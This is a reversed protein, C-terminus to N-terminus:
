FLLLFIRWLLCSHRGTCGQVVFRAAYRPLPGVRDKNWPEGNIPGPPDVVYRALYIWSGEYLRQLLSDIAGLPALNIELRLGIKSFNPVAVSCLNHLVDRAKGLYTSRESLLYRPISFNSSIKFEAWATISLAKSLCQPDICGQFPSERNLSTQYRDRRM